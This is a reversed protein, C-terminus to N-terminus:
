EYTIGMIQAAVELTTSGAIYLRDTQLWPLSGLLSRAQEVTMTPEDHYLYSYAVNCFDHCTYDPTPEWPKLPQDPPPEWEAQKLLKTFRPKLVEQRAHYNGMARDAKVVSQANPVYWVLHHDRLPLSVGPHEIMLKYYHLLRIGRWLAPLTHRKALPLNWLYQNLQDDQFVPHEAKQWRELTTLAVGGVASVEKLDVARPWSDALWDELAAVKAAQEEATPRGPTQHAPLESTDFSPLSGSEVSQALLAALEYKTYHKNLYDLLSM